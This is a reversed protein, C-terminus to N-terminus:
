GGLLSEGQSGLKEQLAAAANCSSQVVVVAIRVTLLRCLILESQSTSPLQQHKELNPSGQGTGNM